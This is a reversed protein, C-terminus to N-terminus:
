EREVFCIASPPEGYSTYRDHMVMKGFLTRWLQPEGFRPCKLDFKKVVQGTQRNFGETSETMVLTAGCGTCFRTTV